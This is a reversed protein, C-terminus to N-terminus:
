IACLCIMNYLARRCRSYVDAYAPGNELQHHIKDFHIDFMKHSDSISFQVEQVHNPVNDVNLHMSSHTISDPYM